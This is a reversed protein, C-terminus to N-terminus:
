LDLSSQGTVTVAGEAFEARAAWAVELTRDPRNLTLVLSLVEVVSPEDLIAARLEARAGQETYAKGWIKGDYDVGADLDAFWEGKVLRLRRNVGTRVAELGTDFGFNYVDLDDDDALKLTVPDTERNAM